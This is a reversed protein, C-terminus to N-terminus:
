SASDSPSDNKDVYRLNNGKVTVAKANTDTPDNKQDDVSEISDDKVRVTKRPRLAM